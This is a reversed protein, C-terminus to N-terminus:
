SLNSVKIFRNKHLETAQAEGRNSAVDAVVIVVTRFRQGFLRHDFKGTPLTPMLNQCKKEEMIKHPM